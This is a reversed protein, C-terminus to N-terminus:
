QRRWVHLGRIKIGKPWFASDMIKDRHEYPVVLRVAFSKDWPSDVDHKSVVEYEIPQIDLETCYESVNEAITDTGGTIPKLNSVYM